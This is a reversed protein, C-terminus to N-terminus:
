PHHGHSAGDLFLRIMIVFYILAALLFLVKNPDM